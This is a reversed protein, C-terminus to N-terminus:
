KIVFNLEEPECHGVTEWVMKQQLTKTMKIGSLQHELDWLSSDINDKLDNYADELQGKIYDQLDNSLGDPDDIEYDELIREIDNRM